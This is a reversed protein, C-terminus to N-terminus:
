ATLASALIMVFFLLPIFFACLFQGSTWGTHSPPVESSENIRQIYNHAPLIFLFLFLSPIIIQNGCLTFAVWGFTLWGSSYSPKDVHSFRNDKKIYDLLSYFHFLAFWGRWFPSIKLGDREKIYRWNKYVWYNAFVGLSIFTMLVLRPTSIYFYAPRPKSPVTTRLENNKELPIPPCVGLITHLPKWSEHGLAWANDNLSIESAAIMDQIQEITFPGRKHGNKAIYIQLERM